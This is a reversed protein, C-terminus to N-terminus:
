CLQSWVSWPLLRTPPALNSQGLQGRFVPEEQAEAGGVGACLHRGPRTLAPPGVKFCLGDAEESFIALSTPYLVLIRDWREQRSDLAAHPPTLAQGWRSGGGERM